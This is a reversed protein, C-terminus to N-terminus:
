TEGKVQSQSRCARFAAAKSNPAPQQLDEIQPSGRITSQPSPPQETLLHCLLLLM